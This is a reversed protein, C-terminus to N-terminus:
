RRGAQGEDHQSARREGERKPSGNTACRVSRRRAGRALAPAEENAGKNRSAVLPSQVDKCHRGEESRGDRTRGGEEKRSNVTELSM